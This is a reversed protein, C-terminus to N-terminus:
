KSRVTLCTPGLLPSYHTNKYAVHEYEGLVYNQKWYSKYRSKFVLKPLVVWEKTSHEYKSENKIM